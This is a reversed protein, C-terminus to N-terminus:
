KYFGLVNAIESDEVFRAFKYHAKVEKQGILNSRGGTFLVTDNRLTAKLTTSITNLIERTYEM